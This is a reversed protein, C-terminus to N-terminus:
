RDLKHMSDKTQPHLETYLAFLEDYLRARAPDPEVIKACAIQDAVRAAKELSGYVEGGVGALLAAGLTGMEQFALV